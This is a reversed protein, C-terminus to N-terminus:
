TSTELERMLDDLQSGVELAGRRAMQYLEYLTNRWDKADPADGGLFEIERGAKNLIKLTPAMGRYGEIVVSTNGLTAVFTLESATPRWNVKGQRTRELLKTLVDGITAM